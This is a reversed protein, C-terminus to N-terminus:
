PSAGRLRTPPPRTVPLPALRIRSL